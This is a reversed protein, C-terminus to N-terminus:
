PTVTYPPETSFAKVDAETTTQLVPYRTDHLDPKDFQILDFYRAMEGLDAQVLTAYYRSPYAPGRGAASTLPLAPVIKAATHGFRFHKIYEEVPTTGHFVAGFPEAKGCNLAVLLRGGGLAAVGNAREVGIGYVRRPLSEVEGAGGPTVSTVYYAARFRGRMHWDRAAM